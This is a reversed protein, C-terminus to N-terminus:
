IVEEYPCIKYEAIKAADDYKVSICFVKIYTMLKSLSKDKDKFLKVFTKWQYSEIKGDKDKYKFFAIAPSYDDTDEITYTLIESFMRSLTEENWSPKVEVAYHYDLILDMGGVGAMVYKTPKEADTVMINGVNKWKYDLRCADCKEVDKGYYLMCRCLRKETIRETDCGPCENHVPKHEKKSEPIELKEKLKEKDLKRESAIEAEKCIDALKELNRLEATKHNIDKKDKFM